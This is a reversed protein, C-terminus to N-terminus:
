SEALKRLKEIADKMADPTGGAKGAALGALFTSVPAMKREVGHAVVRALDLIDDEDIDSDLGLTAAARQAWEDTV